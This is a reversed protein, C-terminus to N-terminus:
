GDALRPGGAQDGRATPTEVGRRDAEQSRFQRKTGSSRPVPFVPNRSTDPALGFQRNRRAMRRLGLASGGSDVRITSARVEVTGAGSVSVGARSRAADYIGTRTERRGQAGTREPLRQGPSEIRVVGLGTQHPQTKDETEDSAFAPVLVSVVPGGGGVKQNPPPASKLQKEFKDIFGGEGPVPDDIVRRRLERINDLTWLNEDGFLSGDAIFCRDRWAEAAALVDVIHDDDPGIWRAM